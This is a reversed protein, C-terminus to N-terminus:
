IRVPASEIHSLRRVANDRNGRSRIKLELIGSPQHYLELTYRESATGPMAYEGTLSSLCTPTTTSTGGSTYSDTCKYVLGAANVNFTAMTDM